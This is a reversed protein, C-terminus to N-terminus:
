DNDVKSKAQNDQVVRANIQLGERGPRKIPTGAFKKIFAEDSELALIEEIKLHPGVGFTSTLEEHTTPVAKLNHPCVDQCLDCGFILSGM